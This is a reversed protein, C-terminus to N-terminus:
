KDEVHANDLISLQWWKAPKGGLPGRSTVYKAGKQRLIASIERAAYQSEGSNLGQMLDDMKFYLMGDKVYMSKKDESRSNIFTEIKEEITSPVVYARAAEDAGKVEWYDVKGLRYEHWAEAWLQPTMEELLAFNLLRDVEVIAYRRYGSPDAMLFDHRNGCGYLTCRREFVEVSAGYPPRFHDQSTTIMAKLFSSEKKGFSDLEDFGVVLASHIKMHLDKDNNEGYMTLSNGRFLLSPMSTKGTGQPGIVIMMWDIKTGPKDMRACSAILWKKGVESTFPTQDVGWTQSLWSDLRPVGDWVQEKIWEMMPSRANKKALAQVCQYVVRSTVKEFGLNHQFYNAIEMETLDPQAPDDGVMVRNNDTNRWVKPFGSHEEMLKMVNSTHQHVTIGGKDSQKFALNHRKALSSPSQVLGEPSIRELLAFQEPSNELWKACLDDIKGPPNVIEVRYGEQQLIHAFTGYASCIDYRYLDADPIILITPNGRLAILDRIWPHLGGSGDPNRWMQCGGIGFAPMGLYKIVSVTKKEGEACVLVDGKTSLTDPHIYPIYSPLGYKALQEGSPQTYRKEKSFEPLKFRTRYMQLYGGPDVLPKGDLGYYPITYMASATAPMVATPQIKVGMEDITLGSRALDQEAFKRNNELNTPIFQSNVTYPIKYDPFPGSIAM